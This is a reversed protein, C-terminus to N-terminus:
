ISFLVLLLTDSQVYLNHYEGLNKIEFDKCIGKAHAYDADTIDEMLSQLSFKYTNFFRKKLEEDFKQQYNKHCCLCNRKILDDQFDAYELFCNCYKYKIRRTEYKKDDHGYNCKIKPIGESLNKVLNTLLSAM